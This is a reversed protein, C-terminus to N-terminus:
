KAATALSSRRRPARRGTSGRTSAGAGGKGGRKKKPPQAEVTLSAPGAINTETPRDSPTAEAASEFLNIGRLGGALQKNLRSDLATVEKAFNVLFHYQCLGHPTGPLALAVADVIVKEGDSVVGVIPVGILAVVERESIDVGHLDALAATIKPFSGGPRPTLCDELRYYAVLAVCDLGFERKPLVRTTLFEPRFYRGRLPCGSKVCTYIHYDIHLRSGVFSVFRQGNWLFRLEEGCAPCESTEPRVHVKRFKSRDRPTRM